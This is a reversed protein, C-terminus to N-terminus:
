IGEMLRFNRLPSSFSHPSLKVSGLKLLNKTPSYPLCLIPGDHAYHASLPALLQPFVNSPLDSRTIFPFAQGILSLGATAHGKPAPTEWRRVGEQSICGILLEM